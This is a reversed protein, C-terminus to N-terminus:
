SISIFNDLNLTSIVSQDGWKEINLNFTITISTAGASGLTTETIDFRTGGNKSPDSNVWDTLAPGNEKGTVIGFTKISLSALTITIVASTTINTNKSLRGGITNLRGPYNYDFFQV